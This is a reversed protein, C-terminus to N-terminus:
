TNSTLSLPTITVVVIVRLLGGEGSNQGAPGGHLSSVLHRTLPASEDAQKSNVVNVLNGSQGSVNVLHWTGPNCQGSQGSGNVLYSPQQWTNM